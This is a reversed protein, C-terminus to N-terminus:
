QGKDKSKAQRVYREIGKAGLAVTRSPHPKCSSNAGQNDKKRGYLPSTTPRPWLDQHHGQEKRDDKQQLREDDVPDEIRM